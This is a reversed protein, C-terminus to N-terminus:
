VKSKSPIFIVCTRNPIDFTKTAAYSQGTIKMQLIYSHAAHHHCQHLLVHKQGSTRKLSMIFTMPLRLSTPRCKAIDPSYIQSNWWTNRNRNGRERKWKRSKYEKQCITSSRTRSQAIFEASCHMRPKTNTMPGKLKWRSGGKRRGKMLQCQPCWFVILVHTEICAVFSFIWIYFRTVRTVFIRSERSM